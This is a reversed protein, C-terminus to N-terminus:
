RSLLMSGVVGLIFTGTGVAALELTRTSVPVDIVRPIRLHVVKQSEKVKVKIKVDESTKEELEVPISSAYTPATTQPVPASYESSEALDQAMKLLLVEHGKLKEEVNRMQGEMMRAYDESLEEVKREFTQALRKRKWPEVLVIALLFVLLNLGLAAM